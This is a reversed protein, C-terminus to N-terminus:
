GVYEQSERTINCSANCRVLPRQGAAKAAECNTHAMGIRYQCSVRRHLSGHPESVDIPSYEMTASAANCDEV